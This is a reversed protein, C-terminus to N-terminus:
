PLSHASQSALCPVEEESARFDQIKARRLQVMGKQIVSKSNSTQSQLKTKNKDNKRSLFFCSLSQLSHHFERELYKVRHM